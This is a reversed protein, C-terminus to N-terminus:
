EIAFLKKRVHETVLRLRDLEIEEIYVGSMGPIAHGMIRHTAHQDHTEDAWTRFNHRLTYFGLGPRHINLTKLLHSFKDSFHDVNSVKIMGDEDSKSVLQRVISNGQSTVFVLKSLKEDEIPKRNEIFQRLADLTEQWLPVVRKVGTKPRDFEIIGSNFSIASIPLHACDTNGFGGNIGLLVAAKIDPDCCKLITLLEERTFLKKGYKMEAKSKAKRKQAASPISFGIGFKMPKDILDTEYAYKFVSRIAIINRTLAHVGLKKALRTRYHQFDEPRLDSVIREKGVASAFETVITRCDEFWRPGIEGTEWKEKQWNLFENCVTKITIANGSVISGRPQRGEHLDGAMAYYKKLAADPDAWVGFFHIKNRIKKCWQGNGHPTLPFTPYPKTPKNKAMNFCRRYQFTTSQVDTYCFPPNDDQNQAIRLVNM